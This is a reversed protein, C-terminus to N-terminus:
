IIAEVASVIVELEFGAALTYIATNAALPAGFAYILGGTPDGNIAEGIGTLFLNADYAPLSTVLANAIDATPLLVAYSQAAANSIFNAVTTNASELSQIISTPSLQASMLAAPLSSAGSMAASGLSTLSAPSLNNALVPAEASIDSMFAGIGQHTGIALDGPLALTDSLPPIVGFPTPVNAPGTSYGFSPNGYGWNVLYTLDPQLLDAIPTGIVPIDRIPNLLPLNPQTIMYYNTAGTGGPLSASGPLEIIEGPPLNSPNISPYTGHVYYIGAFANLDSLLNIPYQPFDAFGDYELTYISTGYPTNPPTAGYFDYGLSPLQLGVFREFIGGNPAMLDGILTFNLRSTSPVTGPYTGNLLNQMVLSSIVASQSYGLVSVSPVGTGSTPFLESNITNQLITVGQSVSTTVPLVKIGTIPYFGEPTFVPLANALSVINTGNFNVWPLVAALYSPPPIPLGSGGIFLGTIPGTLPPLDAAVVASTAAGGGLMSIAATEAEVYANGAASLAAVFQQHFVAAQRLLAQYEQGYAGFLSATLASVEDEAAAAVSTTPGAAAAKAASIASNIQAADAAATAILQPETILSTM